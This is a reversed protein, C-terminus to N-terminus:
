ISPLLAAEDKWIQPVLCQPLSEAGESLWIPASFAIPKEGDLVRVFIYKIDKNFIINKQINTGNSSEIITNNPGVLEFRPAGVVVSNTSLNISINLKDGM